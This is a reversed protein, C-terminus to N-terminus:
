NNIVYGICTLDTPGPNDKSRSKEGFSVRSLLVKQPSFKNFGMEVSISFITKYHTKM